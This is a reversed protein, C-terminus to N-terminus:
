RWVSGAVGQSPEQGGCARHSQLVIHHGASLVATSNPPGGRFPRVWRRGADRAPQLRVRARPRLRKARQGEGGTVGPRAVDRGRSCRTVTSRSRNKPVVASKASSLEVPIQAAVERGSAVGREVLDEIVETALVDCSVHVEGGKLFMAVLYPASRISVWVCVGSAAPKQPATRHRRPKPRGPSGLPAGDRASSVATSSRLPTELGEAAASALLFVSSFAQFLL